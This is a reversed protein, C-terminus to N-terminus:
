GLLFRPAVLEEREHELALKEIKKSNNIDMEEETGKRGGQNM